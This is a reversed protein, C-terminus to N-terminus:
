SYRYPLKIFFTSGKGPQSEVLIDGGLLRITKRSIILGLGVTDHVENDEKASPGFIALQLKKSMGIGTDKVYIVLMENEIYYGLHISGKSTFKLSNEVLYGIIKTLQHVDTSFRYDITSDKNDFVYEIGKEIAAEYSLLWQSHLIDKINCEEINFNGDKNEIDSIEFVKKVAALLQNVDDQIVKIYTENNDKDEPNSSLLNSFGVIGDLPIKVEKSLNRIFETKLRDNKEAKNKSIILEKATKERQFNAHFLFTILVVLVIIFAFTFLVIVKNQEYFSVPKGVLISGSPLKSENIHYEKLQKYDFMYRYPTKSLVKMKAIDAGKFYNSVMMAITKGQDYHSIVKGGFTGYPIASSWPYFIPAHYHSRIMDIADKFSLAKGSKDEFASLFLMPVDPDLQGLVKCFDEFTYNDFWLMEIHLNKFSGVVRMMNLYDNYGSTSHDSVVYIKNYKPFLKLIIDITGKFPAIELIGTVLPNKNMSLGFSVNNVGMFFVPIGKFLTHQRDVVFHLAADDSTIIADYRPVRSLSFTLRREYSILNDKEPFQKCDMYDIDVIVNPLDLVSMIGQYQELATHFSLSYSSLFLVRKDTHMGMSAICVSPMLFMVIMALRRFLDKFGLFQFSADDEM